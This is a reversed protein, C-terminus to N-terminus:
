TTEGLQRLHMLDSSSLGNEIRDRAHLTLEIKGLIENQHFQIILNRSELFALRSLLIESMRGRFQAQTTTSAQSLLVRRTQTLL